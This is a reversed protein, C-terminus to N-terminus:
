CRGGCLLKFIPSAFRNIACGLLVSVGIGCAAKVLYGITHYQDPLLGNMLKGVISVVLIHFAYIFFGQNWVKACPRLAATIYTRGFWLMPLGFLIMLKGSVQSLVSVRNVGGIVVGAACSIFAIAVGAGIERRITLSDSHFAAFMGSSFYLLYSYDMPQVYVPIPLPMGFVWALSLVGLVVLGVRKIRMLMVFVPAVLVYILLCRIYWFQGCAPVDILNWGSLQEICQGIDFSYKGTVLKFIYYIVNWLVYPVGLTMMRKLVSDRWWVGIERCSATPCLKRVLFFGSIVFFWPVALRSLTDSGIIQVAAVWRSAVVNGAIWQSTASVCHIPVVLVACLFGIARIEESTEKTLCGAM